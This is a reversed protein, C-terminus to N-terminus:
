PRAANRRSGRAPPGACMPPRALHPPLQLPEQEAVVGGADAQLHLLAAALALDDVLVQQRRLLDGANRVDEGLDVAYNGLVLHERLLPVPRREDLQEPSQVLEIHRVQVRLLVLLLAARPMGRFLALARLLRRHQLLAAGNHQGTQLAVHRRVVALEARQRLAPVILLLVLHVHRVTARVDLHLSGLVDGEARGPARGQAHARAHDDAAQAVVRLEIPAQAADDLAM